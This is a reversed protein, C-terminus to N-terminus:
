KKSKRWKYNQFFLTTQYNFSEKAGTEKNGNMYKYYAFYIDIRVNITFTISFLLNYLTCSSCKHKNEEEPSTIKALKVEKVTETCEEVM